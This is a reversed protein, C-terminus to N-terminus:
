NPSLFITFFKNEWYFTIKNITTIFFVSYEGVKLQLKLIINSKVHLACFTSLLYHVAAANNWADRKITLM